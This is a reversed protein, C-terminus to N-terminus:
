YGDTKPRNNVRLYLHKYINVLIMSNLYRFLTEDHIREIILQVSVLTVLATYFLAGYVISYIYEKPIYASNVSFQENIGTLVGGIVYGLILFVVSFFLFAFGLKRGLSSLLDLILFRHM